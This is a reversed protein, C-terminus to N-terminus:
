GCVFLDPHSVKQEKDRREQELAEHLQDQSRILGQQLRIKERLRETEEERMDQKLQQYQGFYEKHRQLM